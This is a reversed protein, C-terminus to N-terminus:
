LNSAVDKSWNVLLDMTGYKILYKQYKLSYVESMMNMLWPNTSKVVNRIVENCAKQPRERRRQKLKCALRNYWVKDFVKSVELFVGRVDYENDLSKYIECCKQNGWQM